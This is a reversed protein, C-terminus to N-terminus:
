ESGLKGQGWSEGSGLKGKPPVLRQYFSEMAAAMAQSDCATSGRLRARMGHRLECLRRATGPDRALGSTRRVLRRKNKSVWESLKARHLLSQSTRAAWRDGDVTLVPVGQWLAEMTTTGGNYPWADLAIDVQDYYKLYEYHEAPGAIDIREPAVGRGTFQQRLWDQNHVSKMTTNAVFLRSRRAKRLIKAWTDIVSPTIKYQAVLSGFTLYGNTLCPPDVVPPAKHTIEFTLYSLPLREVRETFYREEGPRVTECDGVIYDFGPLGSTAYMNFWAVVVPARRSTFLDLRDPASFANLDVLVDIGDRTILDALQHNDLSHVSRLRDGPHRKYGLKSPDNKCDSYLFLSFKERRHQNILAWVPKMYNPSDFYSSLYAIRPKESASRTHKLSLPTTDIFGETLHRALRTRTDLIKKHSAAPAAPIITALSILVERTPAYFAAKELLKVARDLDGLRYAAWALQHCIRPSRPKLKLARELIGVAQAHEGLEFLATGMTHWDSADASGSRALQDFVRLAPLLQEDEYLARALLRQTETDQATPAELDLLLRVAQGPQGNTLLQRAHETASLSM